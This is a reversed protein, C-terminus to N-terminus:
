NWDLIKPNSIIPAKHMSTVSLWSAEAEAADINTEKLDQLKTNTVPTCKSITIPHRLHFLCVFNLQLYYLTDAIQKLWTSVRRLKLRKTWLESKANGCHKGASSCHLSLFLLFSKQDLKSCFSWILKLHVKSSMKACSLLLNWRGGGVHFNLLPDRHQWYPHMWEFANLTCKTIHTNLCFIYTPLKCYYYSWTGNVILWILHKWQRPFRGM